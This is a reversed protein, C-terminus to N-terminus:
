TKNVGKDFLNNRTNYTSDLSLMNFNTDYDYVDLKENQKLWIALRISIPLGVIEILAKVLWINVILTLLDNFHYLRGFAIITFIVSDLAAAIVTSLVFRIGLYRGNFFIKLKAIIMANIPEATLYSIFSGLIVFFNMALLKDFYVNDVAFSPSPMHIIVQGFVSFILNFLLAAWIAKRAHKYGYVETIMDSVLFTLPFILTGPSLVMNFILILRADFWNSIAILM